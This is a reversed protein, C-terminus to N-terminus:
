MISADTMQGLIKKLMIIQYFFEMFKSISLNGPFLASILVTRGESSMSNVLSFAAENALLSESELLLRM